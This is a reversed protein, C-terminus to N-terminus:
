FVFCFYFLFCFRVAHWSNVVIKICLFMSGVDPFPCNFHRCMECQRSRQPFGSILRLAIHCSFANTMEAKLQYRRWLVWCIAERQSVITAFLESVSMGVSSLLWAYGTEKIDYTFDAIDCLWKSQRMRCSLLLQYLVRRVGNLQSAAAVKPTLLADICPSGVRFGKCLWSQKTGTVLLFYHRGYDSKRDNLLM